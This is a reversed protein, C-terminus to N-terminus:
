NIWFFHVKLFINIHKFLNPIFNHMFILNLQLDLKVIQKKQNKNQINQNNNCNNYKNKKKSIKNRYIKM